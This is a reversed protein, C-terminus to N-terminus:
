ELLDGDRYCGTYFRWGFLCTAIFLVAYLAWVMLALSEADMVKPLSELLGIVFSLQITTVVWNLIFRKLKRNM